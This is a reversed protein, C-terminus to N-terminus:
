KAKHMTIGAPLNSEVTGACPTVTILTRDDCEKRGTQWDAILQAKTSHRHRKLYDPLVKGRNLNNPVDTWVGDTGLYVGTTTSFSQGLVPIPVIAQDPLSFLYKTRGENVEDFVTGLTSGFETMPSGQKSTIENPLLGFPGGDKGRAFWATDVTVRQPDHLDSTLLLLALTSSGPKGDGRQVGRLASELSVPLHALADAFSYGSQVLVYIFNAAAITTARAVEASLNDETNMSSTTGDALAVVTYPIEGQPDTRVAVADQPIHYDQRALQMSVEATILPTAVRMSFVADHLGPQSSLERYDAVGLGRALLEPSLEYLGESEARPVEISTSREPNGFKFWSM